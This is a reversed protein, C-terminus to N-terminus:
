KGAPTLVVGHIGTRNQYDGVITGKDNIDYFDTYWATPANLKQWTKTQGYWVFGQPFYDIPDGEEYYIGVVDHQNNV